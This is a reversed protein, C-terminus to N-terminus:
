PASAELRAIRQEVAEARRALDANQEAFQRAEDARALLGAEDRAYSAVSEAFREAAYDPFGLLRRGADAFRQGVVPGFARAFAREVFWPLTHALDKLTAALAADGTGMVLADWRGPDALLAPLDLPAVYLEVDPPTASVPATDLAGDDGIAFRASVPGSALAFVRGAHVRLKERAWAEDALLRNAIGRGLASVPDAM